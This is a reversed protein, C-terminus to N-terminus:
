NSIFDEYTSTIDNATVSLLNSPYVPFSPDVGINCESGDITLGQLIEDNSTPLSLAVNAEGLMDLKREDELDQRDSLHRSTSTTSPLLSMETIDEFPLSLSASSVASNLPGISSLPDSNVDIPNIDISSLNLNNLNLNLDLDLPTENFMNFKFDVQPSPFALGDTLSQQHPTQQIANDVYIQKDHDLKALESDDLQIGYLPDSMNRMHKPKSVMGSTEVVSLNRSNRSKRRQLLTSNSLHTSIGPSPTLPHCSNNSEPPTHPNTLASQISYNKSVTSLSASRIKQIMVSSRRKRQESRSMSGHNESDSHDGSGNSTPPSDNSKRKYEKSKTLDIFYDQLVICNDDCEYRVLEDSMFRDDDLCSYHDGMAKLQSVKKKVPDVFDSNKKLFEVCLQGYERITLGTIVKFVRHFHWPTISILHGLERFGLIEGKKLTFQCSEVPDSSETHGSGGSAATSSTSMSTPSLALSPDTELNLLQNVAAYAIYICARQVRKVNEYDLETILRNKYYTIGNSANDKVKVEEPIVPNLQQLEDSVNIPLFFLKSKNKRISTGTFEVYWNKLASYQEEPAERCLHPKFSIADNVNSITFNVMDIAVGRLDAMVPVFDVLEM